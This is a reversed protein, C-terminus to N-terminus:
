FARPSGPNGMLVPAAWVSPPAQQTLAELQAQRLAVAPPVGRTLQRHLALFLPASQRDDIDWLTAIVSPVGAIFFPRALSLVGEGRRVLGGGTQCAALVVLRTTDTRLKALDAADFDSSGSVGPEPAMELHALLPYDPSVIAHGGFHVVEADAMRASFAARTAAERELLDARPYLAAIARAEFAAGALPDLRQGDSAPDGAVLARQPTRWERGTAALARALVTASPAMTIQHQEVLYRGSVPDRLAAFPVRNLVGDPVVILSAGDPLSSRLPAIVWAYLRESQRQWDADTANATFGALWANVRREFLPRELPTRVAVTGLPGIVWAVLEHELSAYYVLREDASLRPALASPLVPEGQGASMADLLSRARSREALTL